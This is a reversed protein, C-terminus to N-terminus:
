TTSKGYYTSLISLLVPLPLICLIPKHNAKYFFVQETEKQLANVVTMLSPYKEWHKIETYRWPLIADNDIVDSGPQGMERPLLRSEGPICSRLAHVIDWEFKKAKGKSTRVRKQTVRLTSWQTKKKKMM